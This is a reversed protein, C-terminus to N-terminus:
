LSTPPIGLELFRGRSNGLNGPIGISERSNGDNKPIWILRLLALRLGGGLPANRAVWPDGLFWQM